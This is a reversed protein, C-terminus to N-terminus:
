AAVLIRTRGDLLDPNHALFAAFSTHEGRRAAIIAVWGWTLAADYRPAHESPGRQRAHAALLARLLGETRRVAEDLAHEGLITWAVRLHGRHDLPVPAGAAIKRELSALWETDDQDM